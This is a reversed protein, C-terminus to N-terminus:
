IYVVIKSVNLYTNYQGAFSKSEGDENSASSRVSMESLDLIDVLSYIENVMDTPFTASLIVDKAKSYEKNKILNDIVDELDNYKVYDYFYSAPVVFFEPVPLGMEVLRILSNAKGGYVLKVNDINRSNIM